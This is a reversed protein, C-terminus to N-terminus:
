SSLGRFNCLMLVNRMFYFLSWGFSEATWRSFDEVMPDKLNYWDPNHDKFSTRDLKDNNDYSHHITLNFRVTKSVYLMITPDGSSDCYGALVAIRVGYQHFMSESFDRLANIGHKELM